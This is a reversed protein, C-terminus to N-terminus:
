RLAKQDTRGVTMEEMQVSILGSVGDHCMGNWSMVDAVKVGRRGEDGIRGPM